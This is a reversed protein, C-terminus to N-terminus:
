GLTRLVDGQAVNQWQNLAADQDTIRFPFPARTLHKGTAEQGDAIGRSIREAAKTLPKQIGAAFLDLLEEVRRYALQPRFLVAHRGSCSRM